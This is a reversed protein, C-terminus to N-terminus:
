GQGEPVVCAVSGAGRRVGLFVPVCWQGAGGVRGPEADCVARAYEGWWRRRSDHEVWEVEPRSSAAAVDRAASVSHGGQATPHWFEDCTVHGPTEAIRLACPVIM